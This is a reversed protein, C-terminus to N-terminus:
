RNDPQGVNRDRILDEYKMMSPVYHLDHSEPVYRKVELGKHVIRYFVSGDKTLAQSGDELIYPVHDYCWRWPGQWQDTKSNYWLSKYFWDERQPNYYEVFYYGSKTPKAEETLTWMIVDKFKTPFVPISGAVQGGWVAREVM